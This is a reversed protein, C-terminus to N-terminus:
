KNPITWNAPDFVNDKVLLWKNDSINFKNKSHRYSSLAGITAIYAGNDKDYQLPGSTFPNVPNNILNDLALLPVDANTMFADSKVLGGSADFDKIMLLTNYDFLKGGNPLTINEPVNSSSRGHDAVLIIRTNDYVGNERLYEFWKGLLLFSSMMVHFRVDNALPGSGRDTVNLVPTYDPAQLIVGNHSIRAYFATYTDSTETFSTIKVLSDMFAYDDLFVDTLQNNNNSLSLWKGDDYIFLRLFLPACKFFSFRILNKDLYEVIDFTSIERHERLWQLTYKGSLNKANFQPYDAFIALNSTQYNDFPPDTVKISYGADSFIKPLLLYAEKLKALLAVDNRSNISSPTYEYGGYIPLAGILTHNAFSVCNPYWNFGDVISLIEPKENFLYPMYAGVASDLLIVLVNKGTKSFNYEPQFAESEDKQLAHQEKFFLFNNQIRIINLISYGLLATLTIIQLSMIIIKKHFRVLLFLGATIILLLTINVAYTLPIFSFAKPESFKMTATIFGFNEFILFVNVMVIGVAIFFSFALASRIKSTSLFYVVLPWFLFIGAAQQLTQLLFPFPSNRSGIFSFEGVSSAILSSPIVFGCLLFLILCPLIINSKINNYAPKEPVPAKKKIILPIVLSSIVLAALLRNPLDGKHLFLLYIDLLFIVPLLFLVLIRKPNKTRQLINKILSFINNVTWYIVLGSPSNYLLLLFVLAIGYLQLKDKLELDKAYIASSAINVLTMIVPLVNLSINAYSFLSDPAGLDKILFFSTGKLMQLNSLFIYAAIFFPIQILLNFTNRLAFVPHYHNQKYFTSLLMYQEDGKFVTKIKDIGPKMKRQLEQEKKQLRDAFFYLPLTLVSVAAGIGFIAM